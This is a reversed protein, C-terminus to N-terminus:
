LGAAARAAKIWDQPNDSEFAASKMAKVAAELLFGAEGPKRSHKRVLELGLNLFAEAVLLSAGKEAVRKDFKKDPKLTLSVGGKAKSRRKTRVKRGIKKKAM